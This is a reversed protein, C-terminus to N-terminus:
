ISNSPITVPEPIDDLLDSFDRARPRGCLSRYANYGPIGHDRGRQLNLAILDMGFRRGPEQFLHNTLQTGILTLEFM